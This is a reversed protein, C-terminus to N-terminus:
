RHADDAGFKAAARQRLRAQTLAASVLDAPHERRLRTATALERAPDYDQLERLLAQGEDRLLSDFADVDVDGM